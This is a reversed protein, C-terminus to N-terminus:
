ARALEASGGGAAAGVRAGARARQRIVPLREAMRRAVEAHLWPVERAAASGAASARRPRRRRGAPARAPQAEAVPM